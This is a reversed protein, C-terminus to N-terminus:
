WSLGLSSPDKLALEYQVQDITANGLKGSVMVLDSFSVKSGLGPSGMIDCVPCVRDHNIAIGKSYNDSRRNPDPKFLQVYGQSKAVGPKDVIYCSNPISMELRTRVAGKVTSGPIVVKDGTRPLANFEEFYPDVIAYAQPDGKLFMSLVQNFDVDLEKAQVVRRGAGVHLYDSIVELTIEVRTPTGLDRPTRVLTHSRSM